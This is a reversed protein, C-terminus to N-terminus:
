GGGAAEERLGAAPPEPRVKVRVDGPPHETGDLVENLFGEGSLLSLRVLDPEPLIGEPDMPPFHVIMAATTRPARGYSMWGSSPEARRSRSAFYSSGNISQSPVISCILSTSLIM